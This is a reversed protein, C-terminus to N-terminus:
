KEQESKLMDILGESLTPGPLVTNVTVGTGAMRKALGRSLALLATKTVAYHIMDPPINLAAESALFLVRGWRRDAMGRLYARSLRVGSMINVDIFRHWEDDPVDFFDATGFIGLNNILIDASPEAAILTEAGAVTGLDAFVGRVTAAPVATKMRQLADDVLAQTPGNLVVTAGAEALKRAVAFGIGSTSGTVIATKSTLEIHM